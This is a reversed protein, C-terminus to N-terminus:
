YQTYHQSSASNETNIVTIHTKPSAVQIALGDRPIIILEVSYLLTQVINLIEQKSDLTIDM